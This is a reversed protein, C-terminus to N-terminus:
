GFGGRLALGGFDRCAGLGVFASGCFGFGPADCFGANLRFVVQQTQCLFTFSGLFFRLTLGALSRRSLRLGRLSGFGTHLRFVIQQAKRM